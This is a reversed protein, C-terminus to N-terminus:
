QLLKDVIEATDLCLAIARRIRADKLLPDRTQFLIGTVGLAPTISLAVDSRSRLDEIEPISLSNIVDLSGSLLGAKAASSDPIVNFRVRDVQAIKAGTYGNRPESRAVYGDFRVVDVYQGRALTEVKTGVTATAIGNVVTWHEARHKHSQLSLIGGPIVRIRKVKFGQGEELVHFEGWPRKESYM